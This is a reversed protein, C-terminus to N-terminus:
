ISKGEDEDFYKLVLFINMFENRVFPLNVNTGLLENIKRVRQVMTNRHIYLVGSTKVMDNGCELYTVLTKELQTKNKSDAARLPQLMTNCYNIIEDKGAGSMLLEIISNKDTDKEM